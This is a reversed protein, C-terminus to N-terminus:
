FPFRSLLHVHIKGGCQYKFQRNAICFEDGDRLIVTDLVFEGNVATKYSESMNQLNCQTCIFRSLVNHSLDSKTSKM